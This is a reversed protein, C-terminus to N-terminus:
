TQSDVNWPSGGRTKPTEPTKLTFNLIPQHRPQNPNQNEPDPRTWPDFKRPRGGWTEPNRPGLYMVLRWVFYPWSLNASREGLNKWTKKEFINEANAFPSLSMIQIKSLAEFIGLCKWIYEQSFNIEWIIVSASTEKYHFNGKPSIKHLICILHM